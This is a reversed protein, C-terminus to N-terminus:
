NLSSHGDTRDTESRVIWRSDTKMDSPIEFPPFLMNILQQFCRKLMNDLACVGDKQFCLNACTMQEM